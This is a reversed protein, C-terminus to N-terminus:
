RGTTDDLENTEKFTYDTLIQRNANVETQSCCWCLYLLHIISSIAGLYFTVLM